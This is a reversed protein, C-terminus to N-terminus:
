LVKLHLGTSDYSTVGRRSSSAEDPLNKVLAELTHQDTLDGGTIACIDGWRIIEPYEAMCAPVFGYGRQPVLKTVDVLTNFYVLEAGLKYLMRALSGEGEALCVVNNQIILKEVMLIEYVKSFTSITGHLRFAQDKTRPLRISIESPLNRLILFQDALGTNHYVYPYSQNGKWIPLSTEKFKRSAEKAKRTIITSKCRVTPVLKRATRSVVEPPLNSIRLPCTKCVLDAIGEGWGQTMLLFLEKELEAQEVGDTMSKLPIRGLLDFLDVVGSTLIWTQKVWMKLIRETGM